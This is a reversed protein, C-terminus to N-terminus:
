RKLMNSNKSHFPCATKHGDGHVIVGSGKCPCKSADPNPAFPDDTDPKVNLLKDEALQFSKNAKEVVDSVDSFASDINFTCINNCGSLVVLLLLLKKM